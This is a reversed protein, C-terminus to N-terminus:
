STLTWGVYCQGEENEGVAIITGDDKLGVTHSCGTAVQIIDTRDRICM